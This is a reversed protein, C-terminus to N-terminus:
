GDQEENKMRDENMKSGKSLLESARTLRLILTSSFAKYFRLQTNISMREIASSNIKILISKGLSQITATRPTKGLYAMEGFCGGRKLTAIPKGGKIVMMEGTAIIYFCEEIEGETIITQNAKCKIWRTVKIVEGLERLLFDKFFDLRKLIKLKKGYDIEEDVFRLHDFFDSLEAALELCTQYRKKIDKELSRLIIRQLLEPINRQSKNLFELKENLIKFLIGVKTDAEFPKSGTLLEYMIIGLSFIDSQQTLRENRFREPSTYYISSPLSGAWLPSSAGEIKAIGFDSIKIIDETSIIINSPKIDRHIVGNQHAYFLAKACQFIINVVKDIPLLTEKCCYKRLTPGEVYEMVMYFQDNEIMADYVSVIGPHILKGAAKAENFFRQQFKEFKRPENPPATLTTKIAVQRDIFPDHALYVVGMGGRGLERVVRYRSIASSLIKKRAPLVDPYTM